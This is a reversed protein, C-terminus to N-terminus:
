NFKKLYGKSIFIVNQEIDNWIKKYNSSEDLLILEPNIISRFNNRSRFFWIAKKIDDINYKPHRNFVLNLIGPFCHFDIASLEIENIKINNVKLPEFEIIQYVYNLNSRNKFRNIWMNTLYQIMLLDGKMGGYSKRFELCYIMSRDLENLDNIEKIRTNFDFEEKLYNDREKVIVLYKVLSLLWNIHIKNPKWEPYAAIMWM